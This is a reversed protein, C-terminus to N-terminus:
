QEPNDKPGRGQLFRRVDPHCGDDPTPDTFRMNPGDVTIEPLTKLPQPSVPWGEGTGTLAKYVSDPRLRPWAFCEGEKSVNSVGWEQSQQMFAFVQGLQTTIPPAEWTGWTNLRSLQANLRRAEATALLRIPYGVVMLQEIARVAVPQVQPHYKHVELACFLLDRDRVNDDAIAIHLPGGEYPWCQLVDVLASLLDAPVDAVTPPAPESEYDQRSVRLDEPADIGLRVSRGRYSEVLITIHPGIKVKEGPRRSIMLM